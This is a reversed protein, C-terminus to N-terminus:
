QSSFRSHNIKIPTSKNKKVGSKYLLYFVLTLSSYLTPVLYFSLTPARYIIVLVPVIIALPHLLLFPLLLILEYRKDHLQYTAMLDLATVAWCILYSTYYFAPRLPRAKGLFSFPVLVIILYLLDKSRFFLTGFLSNLLDRGGLTIAFWAGILALLALLYAIRTYRATGSSTDKPFLRQLPHHEM